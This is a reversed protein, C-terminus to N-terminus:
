TLRALRRLEADIAVVRAAREDDRAALQSGLATELTLLRSSVLEEGRARVAAVVEGVWRDLAARYQLLGRARIVWVAALVGVVGGATLGVIEPGHFAGVVLRSAALAVGVGFGGGLVVALRLQLRNTRGRPGAIEPMRPAQASPAIMSLAAAVAHVERDIEADFDEVIAEAAARVRTEFDTAGGRPVECSSERLESALQACRARVLFILRVRAEHVRVRMTPAATRRGRVIDGRQRRLSEARFANIRQGNRRELDPDALGEALVAVLGDVNPGGLEPAAAVGIWPVARYRDARQALLMRDAALVERWRRHADIKSVAGVVLDAAGSAADILDGDSPTIPAVASVVFVVAAPKECAEAIVVDPMHERLAAALSSVGAWRPGTVLVTATM